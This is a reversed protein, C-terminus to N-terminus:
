TYVLNGFPLKLIPFEPHIRKRHVPTEQLDRAISRRLLPEGEGRGHGSARRLSPHLELRPDVGMSGDTANTASTTTHM